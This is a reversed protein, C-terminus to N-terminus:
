ENVKKIASTPCSELAEMAQGDLDETIEVEKAFAYGEDNFEFVEPCISVCSGCGICASEEVIYKM